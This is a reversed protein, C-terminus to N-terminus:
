HHRLVHPQMREAFDDASGKLHLEGGRAALRIDQEDCGLMGVAELRGVQVTGGIEDDLDDRGLAGSAVAAVLEVLIAVGADGFVPEDIWADLLGLEVLEVGLAAVLEDGGVGHTDVM